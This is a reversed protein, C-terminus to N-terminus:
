APSPVARRARGDAPRQGDERASHYLDRVKFLREPTGLQRQLPSPPPAPPPPPGGSSTRCAV